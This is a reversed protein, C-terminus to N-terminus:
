LLLLICFIPELFVHFFIPLLIFSLGVKVGESRLLKEKLNIGRNYGGIKGSSMVVRHCPVNKDYNKSLAMSVARASTKLKRAIEGYSKTQGKRIKRVIAYVKQQFKSIM